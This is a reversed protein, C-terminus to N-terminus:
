RKRARIRLQRLYMVVEHRTCFDALGGEGPVLPRRGMPKIRVPDFGLEELVPRYGTEMHPYTQKLIAIMEPPCRPTITHDPLLEFAYLTGGPRLVRYAERLASNAKSEINSIGGMSVVAAVSESAIPMQTADFQAFGLNPWLPRGTEGQTRRIHGQAREIDGQASDFPSKGRMRRAFKQWQRLPWLGIDNMVVHAAPNVALVMPTAGGGPGVAIEVIPGNTAAIRRIWDVYKDYEPWQNVMYDYNREILKEPDVRRRRFIEDRTTDDDWGNGDGLHFRPIGNEVPYSIDGEKTRLVGNTWRGDPDSEGVYCLRRYGEPTVFLSELPDHLQKM